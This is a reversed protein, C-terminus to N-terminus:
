STKKLSISTLSLKYKVGAQLQSCDIEFVIFGRRVDEATVNINKISYTKASANFADTVSKYGAIQKNSSSNSLTRTSLDNFYSRETSNEHLVVYNVKRTTDTDTGTTNEQVTLLHKFSLTYIGEETVPLTMKNFATNVGSTESEAPTFTWSQTKTSGAGLSASAPNASRFYGNLATGTIKIKLQLVPYYKGSANGSADNSEAVVLLYTETGIPQTPLTFSVKRGSDRYLGNASDGELTFEGDVVKALDVISQSAAEYNSQEVPVDFWDQGGNLSFRYRNVGNDCVTFGTMTILSGNPVENVKNNYMRANLINTHYAELSTIAQEDNWVSTGNYLNWNAKSMTNDYIDAMTHDIVVDGVKLSQVRTYFMGRDNPNSTSADGYVAVNDIKAIPCYAGTKSKAAVLVDITQGVYSSLNITLAKTKDFDGNNQATGAANILYKASNTQVDSSLWKFMLQEHISKCTSDSGNTLGSSMKLHKNTRAITTWTLGGDTSYAYEAVGATMVARGSLRLKTKIPIGNYLTYVSDYGSFEFNNRRAFYVGEDFISDFKSNQKRGVVRSMGVSASSFTSDKAVVLNTSMYETRATHATSTTVDSVIYDIQSVYDTFMNFNTIRLLECRANINKRPVAAIIIDLNPQSEYKTGALDVTLTFAGNRGDDNTFNAFECKYANGGYNAQAGLKASTRRVTSNEASASAQEMQAETANSMAQTNVDYWTRGNDASWVYREVGGTCAMYGSVSIQKNTAHTSQSPDFVARADYVPAYTNMKAMPVDTYGRGQLNQGTGNSGRYLYSSDYNNYGVNVGGIVLSNNTINSGYQVVEEIRINEIKIRYWQEAEFADIAWVWQLNKLEEETTYDDSINFSFTTNNFTVWHITNEGNYETHATANLWNYGDLGTGTESATSNNVSSTLSQQVSSVSGKVIEDYRTLYAGKYLSGPRQTTNQSSYLAKDNMFINGRGVTDDTAGAISYTTQAGKYLYSQFHSTDGAKGEAKDRFINDATQYTARQEQTLDQVTENIGTGTGDGGQRAVSFDFTVKYTTELKINRLPIGFSVLNTYNYKNAFGLEDAETATIAMDGKYAFYLAEAQMTMGSYTANTVYTGRAQSQRTKGPVQHGNFIGSSTGKKPNLVQTLGTDGNTATISSNADSSPFLANNVYYMNPFDFYPENADPSDVVNIAINTLQLVYNGADLGRLDWALIMNHSGDCTFTLSVNEARSPAITKWQYDDAASIRPKKNFSVKKKDHTTLQTVAKTFTSKGNEDKPTSVVKCGVPSNLSKESASSVIFTSPVYFDEYPNSNKIFEVTFDLTFVGADVGPLMIEYIAAAGSVTSNIAIQQKITKTNKYTGQTGTTNNGDKLYYTFALDPTAEFTLKKSMSRYYDANVSGMLSSVMVATILLIATLAMLVRGFMNKM